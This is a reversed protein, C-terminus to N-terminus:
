PYPKYRSVLKLEGTIKKSVTRLHHKKQPDKKNNTNTKAMSDHINRALKHGGTPFPSVEQSEQIHHKRTHKDSEWITDQTLHTVQNYRNRIKAKKRVKLALRSSELKAYARKKQLIRKELHYLNPDDNLKSARMLILTFNTGNLM